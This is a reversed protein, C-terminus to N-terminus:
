VVTCGARPGELRRAAYVGERVVLSWDRAHSYVLITAGEVCAGHVVSNAAPLYESAFADPDKLTM